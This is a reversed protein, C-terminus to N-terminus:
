EGKKPGFLQHSIAKTDMTMRPTALWDIYRAVAAQLPPTIDASHEVTQVVLKYVNMPDPHMEIYETIENELRNYFRSTKYIGNEDPEDLMQSTADVIIKRIEKSKSM